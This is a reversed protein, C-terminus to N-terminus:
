RNNKTYGYYVEKYPTNLYERICEHCKDGHRNFCVWGSTPELLSMVCHNRLEPKKKFSENLSYLFDSLAMTRTIHEYHSGHLPM